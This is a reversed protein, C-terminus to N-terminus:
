TLLDLSIYSTEIRVTLTNRAPPRANTLPHSKPRPRSRSRLETNPVVCVGTGAWAGCALWMYAEPEGGDAAVVDSASMLLVPRVEVNEVEVGGRSTCIGCPGRCRGCWGRGLGPPNRLWDEEQESWRGNNGRGM